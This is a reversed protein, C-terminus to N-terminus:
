TVLNNDYFPEHVSADLAMKVMKYQVDDLSLGFKECFFTQDHISWRATVNRGDARYLNQFICDNLIVYYDFTTNPYEILIRNKASDSIM